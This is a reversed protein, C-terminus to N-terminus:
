VLLDRHMLDAASMLLAGQSTPLRARSETPRQKPLGALFGGFRNRWPSTLAPDLIWVSRLLGYQPTELRARPARHRFGSRARGAPHFRGREASPPLSDRAVGTARRDPWTFGRLCVTLHAQGPHGLNHIGLRGISSPGEPSEYCVLVSRCRYPEPGAM